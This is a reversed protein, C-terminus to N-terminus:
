LEWCFCGLGMGPQIDDRKLAPGSLMNQGDVLAVGYGALGSQCTDDFVETYEWEKLRRNKPQRQKLAEGLHHAVVKCADCRYQDPMTYGYQDEETM